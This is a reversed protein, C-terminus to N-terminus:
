IFECSDILDNFLILLKHIFIERFIGSFFAISHIDNKWLVDNRKKIFTKTFVIRSDAM